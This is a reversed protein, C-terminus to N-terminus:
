PLSNVHDSVAAGISEAVLALRDSYPTNVGEIDLAHTTKQFLEFEKPDNYYLCEVYSTAVGPIMRSVGLNRAFVGSEVRESNGFGNEEIAIGMKDHIQHAIRRSLAVSDTWARASLAHNVLALRDTRSALESPEFGGQVYTKVADYSSTAVGTPNGPPDNTDFHIVLALDPEFARIMNSRAELDARLIFYKYHTADNDAFIAKREKSADFADFLSQGVSGASLLQQYWDLQSSERLEKKAWDKLSFTAYDLTSVAHLGRRTIMVQAGLQTFTKELLLSVQLAMVGESLVRGSSDKVFKGTREDWLKGGMHGPDIAIKLGKWGIRTNLRARKSALRVTFDQVGKSARDQFVRLDSADSEVYAPFAQKRDFYKLRANFTKLSQNGDLGPATAQSDAEDAVGYHKLVAQSRKFAEASALPAPRVLRGVSPVAVPDVDEKAHASVGALGTALFAFSFVVARVHPFRKM